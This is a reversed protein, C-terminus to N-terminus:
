SVLGRLRAIIQERERVLEAAREAELDRVQAVHAGDGYAGQAVLAVGTMRARAHKVHIGDARRQWTYGDEVPLFELSVQDLTGDAALARAELATATNSFRFQVWPGDKRDEIVKARGIPVANPGGHTLFLHVRHEANAAAAFAGRNFSEFLREGVQAEVGYPVARVLITGAEPDVHELTATRSQLGTLSFSDTTMTM